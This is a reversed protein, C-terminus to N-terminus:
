FPISWLTSDIKNRVILYSGNSSMSIDDIDISNSGINKNSSLLTRRGSSTNFEFLEDHLIARGQYWIDPYSGGALSQPIGCYLINKQLPSWVCKDAITQAIINMTVGTKINYVYLTATGDTYAISTLSPNTKTVLGSIPGLVKKLSGSSTNLFYVYGPTNSSAKTTLTITTAEPWTVIWEGFPSTFIQRRGTGDPNSIIGRIGDTTRELLFIKKSDPSAVVSEIAGSIFSGKLTRLTTTANKKGLTATYTRVADSDSIYRYIISDGKNAWVVEQVKPITTNSIKSITGTRLNIENIFGQGRDAYRVITSLGATYIYGSTSPATTIQSVGAIPVSVEGGFTDPIPTTSSGTQSPRDPSGPGFPSGTNTVVPKQPTNGKQFFVLYGAVGLAILLFIISTIFVKKLMNNKLM